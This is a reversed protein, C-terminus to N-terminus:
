PKAGQQAGGQPLGKVSGSVAQVPASETYGVYTTIAPLVLRMQLKERALKEVRASTAQARKEVKLRELESSLRREEAQAKDLETFLRRSEYQVNVLYIASAVVALLLMLNVRTM